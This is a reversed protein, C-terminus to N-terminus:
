AEVEQEDAIECLKIAHTLAHRGRPNDAKVLAYDFAENTLELITGAVHDPPWTRDGIRQTAESLKDQATPKDGSEWADLAEILLQRTEEMRTPDDDTPAPSKNGACDKSSMTGHKTWPVWASQRDVRRTREQLLVKSSKPVAYSGTVKAFLHM